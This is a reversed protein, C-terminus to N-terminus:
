LNVGLNLSQDLGVAIVTFDVPFKANLTDLTLLVKFRKRKGALVVQAIGIRKAYLGHGVLFHYADM